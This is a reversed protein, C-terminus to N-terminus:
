WQRQHNLLPQEVEKRLIYEFSFSLSCVEIWRFSYLFFPLFNSSRSCGHDGQIHETITKLSLFFFLICHLWIFYTFFFSSWVIIYQNYVFLVRATLLRQACICEVSVLVLDSKILGHIDPLRLPLPSACSHTRFKFFHCFLSAHFSGVTNMWNKNKTKEYSYSM